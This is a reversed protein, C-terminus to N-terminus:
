RPRAPRAAAPRADAEGVLLLRAPLPLRPGVRTTASSAVCDVAQGAAGAQAAVEAALTALLQVEGVSVGHMWIRAAGAPAPLPRIDGTFRIWPAAVPRGGALRRWAVWPLLAALVVLYIVNLLLPM